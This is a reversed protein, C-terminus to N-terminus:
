SEGISDALREALAVTSLNTNARPITPMISADAVILGDLGYVRGGGDVVRGIACTGVPHFFGRATDRVHTMADVEPGPRTERGAYARVADGAALRRLSEVGETLVTSDDPDSLFGHDVSLPVRPDSSHLRVSGRSAPKMAFVAVSVEYAHAGQPDLGPFFFLDSLGQACASSSIAVTVQAMFLPNSREFAAVERQLRDTGQYGFGVGVHDILGEGVPLGRERGIGSRLLIGPSGYAGAALVVIPARLEGASTAVGVARDGDLLVQDVLTDALITLNERGRVPDLYAFASNWRVTGMANVPHVIAADGCTEAFARHWPSLEAPELRRVRMQREARRLYPEIADYSWGDGWEDYDAPAGALMVCANHASCGGLIRARLQSRDERDTEWAHSFALRRGDLMDEPWHGHAYPGYDPGAEVLGVRRGSESLRAAVVCGASGGGAVLIDFGSSRGM